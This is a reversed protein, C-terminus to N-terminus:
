EDEAFGIIFGFNKLCVKGNITQGNITAAISLDLNSIEFSGVSFPNVDADGLIAELNLDEIDVNFGGNFAIDYVVGDEANIQVSANTFTAQLKAICDFFIAQAYYYEAANEKSNKELAPESGAVYLEIKDFDFDKVVIKYATMEGGDRKASYNIEAEITGDKSGAGDLTASGSFGSYLIEAAPIDVETAVEDISVKVTTAAVSLAEKNDAAKFSLEGTAKVTTETDVDKSSGSLNGILSFLDTFVKQITASDKEMDFNEALSGESESPIEASAAQPQEKVENKCAVMTVLVLLIALVTFIRFAKTKM